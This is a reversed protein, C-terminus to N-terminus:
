WSLRPHQQQRRRRRTARHPGTKETKKHTSTHTYTSINSEIDPCCVGEPPTLGAKEVEDIYVGTPDLGPGMSLSVPHELFGLYAVKWKEFPLQGITGPYQCLGAPWMKEIIEVVAEMQVRASKTKNEDIKALIGRKKWSSITKIMSPLRNGTANTYKSGKLEYHYDHPGLLMIALTVLEFGLFADKVDEVDVEWYSAMANAKHEATYLTIEAATGGPMLISGSCSTSYLLYAFMDGDRSPVDVFAGQVARIAGVGDFEAGHVFTVHIGIRNLVCMVERVVCDPLIAGAGGAGGKGDFEAKLKARRADQCLAKPAYRQEFVAEISKPALKESTGAPPIYKRLGGGGESNRVAGSWFILRKMLHNSIQELVRDTMFAVDEHDLPTALHHHYALPTLYEPPCYATARGGVSAFEFCYNVHWFSSSATSGMVVVEQGAKEFVQAADPIGNGAGM